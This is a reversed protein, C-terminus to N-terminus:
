RGAARLNELEEKVQDFRKESAEYCWKPVFQDKVTPLLLEVLKRKLGDAIKEEYYIWGATSKAEMMTQWFSLMETLLITFDRETLLFPNAILRNVAKALDIDDKLKDHQQCLSATESKLCELEQKDHQIEDTLSHKQLSLESCTWNYSNCSALLDKNISELKKKETRLQPLLGSLGGAEKVQKMLCDIAEQSLGSGSLEEGALRAVLNVKELTLNHRKLNDSMEQELRRRQEAYGRHLEQLSGTVAELEGRRREMEADHDAKEAAHQGKLQDIKTDLEKVQSVMVKYEEVIAEYGIGKEQELASLELAATIFGETSQDPSAIEQCLGIWHELDVPEVGLHLLRWFLSAGSQAQWPSINLRRLEVALDRLFDVQDSIEEFGPHLGQKLENIINVVSGKSVGTRRVIEDYPLGDLYLKIVKMRKKTSIERM